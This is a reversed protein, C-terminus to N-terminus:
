IINVGTLETHLFKVREFYMELNNKINRDESLDIKFSLLKKAINGAHVESIFEPDFKKHLEIFEQYFKDLTMVYVTQIVSFEIPLVSRLCLDLDNKSQLAKYAEIGCIVVKEIWESQDELITVPSPAQFFNQATCSKSNISIVESDFTEDCDINLNHM